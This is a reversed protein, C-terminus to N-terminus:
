EGPFEFPLSISSIGYELIPCFDDSLIDQEIEFALKWAGEKNDFVKAKGFYRKLEQTNYGERDPEYEINEIAQAHIIRFEFGDGKPSKLIYIGNDASM